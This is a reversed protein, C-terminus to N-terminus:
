VEPLVLEWSNREFVAKPLKDSQQAYHRKLYALTKINPLRLIEASAGNVAEMVEHSLVIDDGFEQVIAKRVKYYSEGEAIPLGSFYCFRTYLRWCSALRVQQPLTEYQTPFRSQMDQLLSDSAEPLVRLLFDMDVGYNVDLEEDFSMDDVSTISRSKKSPFPKKGKKTKPLDLASPLLFVVLTRMGQQVSGAYFPNGGLILKGTFYCRRNGGKGSIAQHQRGVAYYAMRREHSDQQQKQAFSSRMTLESIGRSIEHPKEQVVLNDMPVTAGVAHLRDLHKKSKSRRREAPTAGSLNDDEEKEISSPRMFRQTFTSKDDPACNCVDDVFVDMFRNTVTHEGASTTDDQCGFLSRTWSGNQSQQQQEELPSTPSTNSKNSDSQMSKNLEKKKLTELDGAIALADESDLSHTPGWSSSPAPKPLKKPPM